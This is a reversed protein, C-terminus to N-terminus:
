GNRVSSLPIRITAKTGHAGDSHIAFSGGIENIRERVGQLGFHGKDVGPASGPDFGCGNDTVSCSLSDGDIMGAVMISTAKGHRVANVILERITRLLAHVTNDSLKSRMVDFRVTVHSQNVYPQLTRLIAKEMDHEELAESRLDWLCNKLETRCLKLAKAAFDLHATMEPSTDNALARATEIEMSVGTLNQAITDHLETALRTREVTKLDAKARQLQERLLEHERKNVIHNLTRNWIFVCILVVLMAGIVALLRLPTWWPPRALVIVGKADNVVISFSKATPHVFGPVWYETDIVCVGVVSVTMGMELNDAMPVGAELRVPIIAGDSELLLTDRRLKADPLNRIKGVIRMRCGHMSDHIFQQNSGETFLSQATTDTISKAPIGLDPISRWVARRLTLHFMDSLPFGSVEISEGQAPPPSAGCVVYVVDEKATRMLVNCRGWVCIVQGQTRVRGHTAILSPQLFRISEADPADFPDGPPPPQTRIAQLGRCQFVRGAFSRATGDHTNPFGEISVHREILAEFASSPSGGCPMSVSLMENGSTMALYIWNPNTTSPLVERVLGSVRVFRWDHRGAIIDCVQADKAVPPEGRKVLVINTFVAKTRWNASPSTLMGSLRVHDGPRVSAHTSNRMGRVFAVGDGDQLSIFDVNDECNIICTIQASIDFGTTREVSSRLSRALADVTDVTGAAAISACLLICIATFKRALRPMSM